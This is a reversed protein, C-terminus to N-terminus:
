LDKDLQISVQCYQRNLIKVFSGGRLKRPKDVNWPSFPSINDGLFPTSITNGVRTAEHQPTEWKPSLFHVLDSVPFAYMSKLIKIIPVELSKEGVQSGAVGGMGWRTKKGACM